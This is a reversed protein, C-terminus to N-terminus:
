FNAVFGHIKLSIIVNPAQLQNISQWTQLLAQDIYVM